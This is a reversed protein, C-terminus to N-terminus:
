SDDQAAQAARRTDRTKAWSAAALFGAGLLMSIGGWIQAGLFNGDMTQILKGALPSGTLSPISVLTFIMGIRTGVKGMDATLGAAAAPLLSMLGAAFHGLFAVFIYAGTVSDVATWAFICIATGLTQPIYTNLPGIWRDAIFAPVIRGSIGAVNIIMLVIFSQSQDGGLDQVM